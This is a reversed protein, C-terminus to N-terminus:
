FPTFGFDGTATRAGDKGKGGGGGGGGPELSNMFPRLHAKVTFSVGGLNIYQSEQSWGMVGDGEEGLSGRAMFHVGPWLVSGQGYFPGRAM